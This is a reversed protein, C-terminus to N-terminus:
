ANIADEVNLANICQRSVVEAFRCPLANGIMECAKEIIDTEFKYSSPFTQITAAERVSITRDEEPHGFRGSSLTTCGSTMTPAVDDWSMRAYVNPFGKSNKHCDPRLHQPLTMRSAGPKLHKLREITIPKLDRTVHWNYKRAGGNQKAYSYSTPQKKQKLENRLDVWSEQGNVPVRGHTAIPLEVKFGKGALLVLRKRSQPVGYDAMQLVNKTIIYGKSGLEEIFVDLLPSGRGALGPVNELMCIQPELEEVLRGMQIVLQNRPDDRNKKDTLTSFGQCPPCGAILDIKQKGTKRLIEEGTVERIDKDLVEVEPHNKRYTNVATKDIEVAAIVDFGARKLGVSLGGAGSFLDIATFKTTHIKLTKM